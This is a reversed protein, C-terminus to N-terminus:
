LKNGRLRRLVEKEIQIKEQERSYKNYSYYMYLVAISCSAGVISNIIIPLQWGIKFPMYMFLAGYGAISLWFMWPSIGATEKTIYLKYIQPVYCILFCGVYFYGLLEGMM